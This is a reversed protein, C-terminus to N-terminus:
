MFGQAQLLSVPQTWGPITHVGPAPSYLRNTLSNYSYFAGPRSAPHFPPANTMPTQQYPFYDFPPLPVPLRWAVLSHVLPDTAVDPLSDAAVEPWTVEPLGGVTVSPQRYWRYLLWVCAAMVIRSNCSPNCARRKHILRVCVTLRSKLTGLLITPLNTINKKQVSQLHAHTHPLHTYTFSLPYM